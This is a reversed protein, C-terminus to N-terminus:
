VHVELADVFVDVLDDLDPTLQIETLQAACKSSEAARYREIGKRTLLRQFAVESKLLTCVDGAVRYQTRTTNFLDWVSRSDYMVPALSSDALMEMAEVSAFVASMQLIDNLGARLLKTEDRENSKVEDSWSSEAEYKCLVELANLRDHYIALSLPTMCMGVSYRNYNANLDILAELYAANDFNVAYFIPTYPRYNEHELDCGADILHKAMTIFNDKSKSNSLVAAHLPLASFRETIRADAGADILTKVVSPHGGIAAYHLSTKGANDRINLHASYQLLTRVASLDGRHSAWMLPTKGLWDQSDIDRVDVALYGELSLLCQGSVIRHLTSVKLDIVDEVHTLLPQLASVEKNVEGYLLIAEWVLDAASRANTLSDDGQTTFSAVYWGARDKLMWSAGRQALM